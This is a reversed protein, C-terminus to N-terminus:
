WHLWWVPLVAAGFAAVHIVSVALARRGGEPVWRVMFWGVFPLQGAMFLQWLHAATGEDAQPAIGSKLIHVGIATLAGLSMLVPALGSPKWLVGPAAAVGQEAPPRQWIRVALAGVALNAVVPWTARSDEVLAELEDGYRRWWWRPYLRYVARLVRNM